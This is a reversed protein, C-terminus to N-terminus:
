QKSSNLPLTRTKHCCNTIMNKFILVNKIKKNLFDMLFNFYCGKMCHSNEYMREKHLKNWKVIYYDANCNEGSCNLFLKTKGVKEVFVNLTEESIKKYKLLLVVFVNYFESRLKKPDTKFILTQSQRVVHGEKM